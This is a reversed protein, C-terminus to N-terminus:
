PEVTQLEMLRARAVMAAGRKLHEMAQKAFFEPDYGSTSTAMLRGLAETTGERTMGAELSEIWMQWDGTAPLKRREQLFTDAFEAIRRQFPNAVVLDNRLAEGLQDM